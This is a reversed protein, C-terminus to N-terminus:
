IGEEEDEEDEEITFLGSTYGNAIQEAIIELASDDFSAHEGNIELSWSIDRYM